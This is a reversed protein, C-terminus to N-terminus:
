SVIVLLILGLSLIGLGALKGGVHGEHFFHNGALIAWLIASTRRATMVLSSPAFLYAFSTLVVECGTGLSQLIVRPEKFHRLPNQKTALSAAIFLYMVYIGSLVLQEGMVSNHYTINYQYLSVTAVALLSGTIVWWMGDRKLTHTSLLGLTTILILAIGLIELTTVSFGLALDAMVLFPITLMRLFAFTARTAKQLGIIVTHLICLELVVRVCFLTLPVPEFSFRFDSTYRGIFTDAPVLLFLLLLLVTGSVMNIFGMAIPSQKREAVFRKSLSQGLEGSLTATMALLIGFM